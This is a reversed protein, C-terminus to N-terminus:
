AALLGGPRKQNILEAKVVNSIVRGLNGAGQENNVQEGANEVSVNVTVNNVSGTGTGGQMTVPITRGDPLPVYAEPMRGEGFLALQPTNAIGGNAYKKLPQPGGSTMIGGDAFGFAAKTAAMLPAMIQQQILIRAMDQIISLALSKFNLKGTMVFSVLADEIGKFANGFAQEVSKSVDKINELYENFARKAGAGFTRSNAYNLDEVAQKTKFLADAVQRYSAADEENMRKTAEAVELQHKKAAVLKEYERATMDAKQGELQLLEISGKEKRNLEDIKQLTAKSDIEKALNILQKRQNKDLDEFRKTELLSAIEQMKTLEGTKSLQEELQQKLKTFETEKGASFDFGGGLGGKGKTSDGADKMTSKLKDMQAKVADFTASGNMKWLTVYRQNAEEVIKNREALAGSLEDRADQSFIAAPGKAIFSGGLEIDAWVAKFSGLIAMVAQAAVKIVDVLAAIGQAAVSAWEALSSDGAVDGVRTKADILGQLFGSMVPLLEKAFSLSLAGAMRRMLAMKDNFDDAAAAFGGTFLAGYGELQARADRIADGGANLLPVIDAASKGFAKQAAATKQWGDPMSAIKDAIRAMADTLTVSGSKLEAQSIGFQKFVGIAEKSGGAAEAMNKSLKSLAGSVQDLSSGNLEAAFGLADLDEVAIGTKQSLDFLHDGTDIAGKIMGVFGALVAAGGLAAFAGKIMNASGSLRDMSTRLQDVAQQGTVGASIKLAVNMDM